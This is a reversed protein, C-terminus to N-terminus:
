GDEQRGKEEEVVVAESGRADGECAGDGPGFFGADDAGVFVEEVGVGVGRAGGPAGGTAAVGFFAEDRGEGEVGSGREDEDVMKGQEFSVELAEFANRAEGEPAAGTESCVPMGAEGGYGDDVAVEM